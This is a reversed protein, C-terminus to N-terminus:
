WIPILCRYSFFLPIGVGCEAAVCVPFGVGGLAAGIICAAVSYACGDRVGNIWCEWYVQARSRPDQPPGGPGGSFPMIGEQSQRASSLLSPTMALEPVDGLSDGGDVVADPFQHWPEHNQWVLSAWSLSFSASGVFFQVDYIGEYQEAYHAVYIQGEWTNPDGDDWSWFVMEGSADGIVVSQPVFGMTSSAEAAPDALALSRLVFVEETPKAGRDSMAAHAQAFQAPYRAMLNLLHTRAAQGRFREISVGRTADFVIDTDSTGCAADIGQSASPTVLTTEGAWGPMAVLLIALGVMMSRVTCSWCGRSREGCVFQPKNM